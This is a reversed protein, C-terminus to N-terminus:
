VVDELCHFIISIHYVCVFTNVIFAFISVPHSSHSIGFLPSFHLHVLLHCFSALDMVLLVLRDELGSM